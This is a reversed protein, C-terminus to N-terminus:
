GVITGTIRVRAVDLYEWPGESTPFLMGHFPPGISYQLASSVMAGLM